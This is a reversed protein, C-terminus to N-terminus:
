AGGVASYVVTVEVTGAAISTRVTGDPYTTELELELRVPYSAGGALPTDWQIRIPEGAPYRGARTPASADNVGAIYRYGVLRTTGSGLVVGGSTMTGESVVIARPHFESLLGRPWWLVTSGDDAPGVPTPGTPSSPSAGVIVVPDAYEIAVAGIGAARNSIDLSFPEVREAPLGGPTFFAAYAEGAVHATVVAEFQGAATYTHPVSLTEPADPDPPHDEVVGDGFDVTWGTIRLADRDIHAALYGSLADVWAGTLRASVMRETGAPASAPEVGVALFLSLDGYAAATIGIGPRGGDIAVTVPADVNVREDDACRYLWVWYHRSAPQATGMLEWRGYYHDCAVVTSGPEAPISWHGAARVGVYARGADSTWTDVTLEVDDLGLVATATVGLAAIALMASAILRRM